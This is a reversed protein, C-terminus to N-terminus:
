TAPLALVFAPIICPQKGQAQKGVELDCFLILAKLVCLAQGEETTLSTLCSPLMELWNGLSPLKGRVVSHHSPALAPINMLRYMKGIRLVSFLRWILAPLGSTRSM